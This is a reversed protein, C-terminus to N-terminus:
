KKVEKVFEVRCKMDDPVHGFKAMEEVQEDLRASFGLACHLVADYATEFEGEGFTSFEAYRKGDHILDATIKVKFKKM